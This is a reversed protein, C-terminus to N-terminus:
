EPIMKFAAAAADKEYEYSPNSGFANKDYLLLMGHILLKGSDGRKKTLNLHEFFAYREVLLRYCYFTDTGEGSYCNIVLLFYLDGSVFSRLINSYFKEGDSALSLGLTKASFPGKVNTEPCKMSIFKLIQYLVRFYQSLVDPNRLLEDKACKLFLDPHGPCFGYEPKYSKGLATLMISPSSFAGENERKRTVENLIQNLQNLLSFFTDEFRQMELTKSQAKLAESSAELEKRSLELETKSLKLSRQGQVITVGIFILGLLSFLPNLMGGFYDGMVGLDPRTITVSSFWQFHEYYISIVHLTWGLAVILVFVLTSPLWNERLLKCTVSFYPIKNLIKPM